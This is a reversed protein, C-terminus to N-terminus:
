WFYGMRLITGKKRLVAESNGSVAPCHRNYLSPDSRTVHTDYNLCMKQNAAAKTACPPATRTKLKRTKFPQGDLWTKRQFSFAILVSLSQNGYNRQAWGVLTSQACLVLSEKVSM